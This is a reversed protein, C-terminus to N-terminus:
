PKKTLGLQKTLKEDMELPKGKIASTAKDGHAALEMVVGGTIVKVMPWAPVEDSFWVDRTKGKKVTRYHRAKYTGAAVKLKGTSILKAKKSPGSSFGPFPNKLMSGPLRLPRQGHAQVIVQEVGEPKSLSGKILARFIMTRRMQDKIALEFWQRGEEKGLASFKVRAVTNTKRILMTYRVWSGPEIKGAAAM